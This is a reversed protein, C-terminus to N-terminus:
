HHVSCVLVRARAQFLDVAEWYWAGVSYDSFLFRYKYFAARETTDREGLQAGSARLAAWEAQTRWRLMNESPQSVFGQKDHKARELLAALLLERENHYLVASLTRRMSKAQLTTAHAVRGMRQRAHYLLAAFRNEPAPPPPSTPGTPRRRITSSRSSPDGWAADHNGAPVSLASPAARLAQRQTPLRELPADEEPAVTAAAQVGHLMRRMVSTNVSGRMSEDGVGFRKTNTSVDAPTHDEQAEVFLEHLMRLHELTISDTTITDANFPQKPSAGLVLARQVIARLWACDSKWAALHPVRSAYLLYLIALPIGLPFLMSWLVGVGIYLKHEQTFCQIRYDAMLWWTNNELKTCAFILLTTSSVQPYV